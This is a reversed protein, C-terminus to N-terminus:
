RPGFLSQKLEQTHLQFGSQDGLASAHLALLIKHQLAENSGLWIRGKFRIVGNTLSYNDKITGLVLEVLFSKSQEESQYGMVVQEAM